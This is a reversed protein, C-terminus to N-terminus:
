LGYRDKLRQHQRAVKIALVKEVDKAKVGYGQMLMHSANNMNNICPIIKHKIYDDMDEIEDKKRLYKTIFQHSECLLKMAKMSARKKKCNSDLKGIDKNKVHFIEQIIMVCFRVDAIEEATHVYSGDGDINDAIVEILECMEELCVVLYTEEGIMDITKRIADLASKKTFAPVRKDKMGAKIAAENM